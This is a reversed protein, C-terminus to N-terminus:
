ESTPHVSGSLSLASIRERVQLGAELQKGTEHRPERTGQGYDMDHEESEPHKIVFAKEWSDYIELGKEPKMTNAVELLPLGPTEFEPPVELIFPEDKSRGENRLKQNYLIVNFITMERNLDVLEESLEKKYGEHFTSDQADAAKKIIGGYLKMYAEGLSGPTAVKLEIKQIPEPLNEGEPM